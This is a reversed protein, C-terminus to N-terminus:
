KNSYIFFKQRAIITKELTKSVWRVNRLNINIIKRKGVDTIQLDCDCIFDVYDFYKNKKVECIVVDIKRIKRKHTEYEELPVLPYIPKDFKM